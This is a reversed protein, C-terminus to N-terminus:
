LEKKAFIRQSILYSLGFLALAAALLGAIGLTVATESPTPVANEALSTLLFGIAVAVGFILAFFVMLIVRAKEVSFKYLLPLMFTNMLLAVAAVAPVTLLLKPLPDDTLDALRLALMLLTALAAAGLLILLTFLYRGAVMGRRGAPTAAAFKDWKAQYDFSFANVPFIAGMIVTIGSLVSVDTLRTVALLTYFGMLVLFYWLQKRMLLFDKYVFGIM